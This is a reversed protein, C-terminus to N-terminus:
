LSVIAGDIADMAFHNRAATVLRGVMAARTEETASAAHASLVVTELTLFRPDIAPENEFVDLAAGAIRGSELAAIMAEEDIVSGRAINVILGQPGLAEIVAADVIHHTEPSAACALILVDSQRALDVASDVYGPVGPKAARGHYRVTMGLARAKEAIRSGIKGMGVIGVARSSVRRSTGPRRAGTWKGARVFRDGEAIRRQAAYLLGIAFDAVDETLEDPTIAVTIGRQKAKELDLKDTGVGFSIILELDPLDMIEPPAGLVPRTVVVRADRPADRAPL